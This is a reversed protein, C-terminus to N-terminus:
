EGKNNQMYDSYTLKNENELYESYFSEPIIKIKIIKDIQKYWLGIGTFITIVSIIIAVIFYGQDFDNNFNYIAKKMTPQNYSDCIIKLFFLLIGIIISCILQIVIINLISHIIIYNSFEQM